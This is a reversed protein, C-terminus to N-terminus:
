AVDFSFSMNLKVIEVSHKSIKVYKIHSRAAEESNFSLLHADYEDNFVDDTLGMVSTIRANIEIDRFEVEEEDTNNDYFSHLFLHADKQKILFIPDIKTTM